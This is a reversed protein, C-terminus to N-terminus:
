RHTCGLSDLAVVEDGVRITGKGEFYRGEELGSGPVARAKTRSAMPSAPSDAILIQVVHPM